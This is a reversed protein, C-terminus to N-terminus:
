SVRCTSWTIPRVQPMTPLPRGGVFTVNKPKDQDNYLLPMPADTPDMAGIPRSPQGGGAAGLIGVGVPRGVRVSV